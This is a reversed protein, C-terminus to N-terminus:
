GYTLLHEQMGANLLFSHLARFGPTQREIARPTLRPNTRTEPSEPGREIHQEDIFACRTPVAPITDDTPLLLYLLAGPHCHPGLERMLASVSDATLYNYLDWALILSFREGQSPQLLTVSRGTAPESDRLLDQIYIRCPFHGLFTVNAELPPGLDLVHHKRGRRLHGLLM